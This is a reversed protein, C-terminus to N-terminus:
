TGKERATHRPQLPVRAQQRAQASLLHPQLARLRSDKIGMGIWFPAAARTPAFRIPPSSTFMLVAAAHRRSSSAVGLSNRRATATSVQHGARGGFDYDVRASATLCFHHAGALDGSRTSIM